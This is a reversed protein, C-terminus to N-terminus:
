VPCTDLRHSREALQAITRRRHPAHPCIRDALNPTSWVFEPDCDPRLDVRLTSPESGHGDWQPQCFCPERIPPGGRFLEGPPPKSSPEGQFALGRFTRWISIRGEFTRKKLNSCPESRGPKEVSESWQSSGRSPKSPQTADRQPGVKRSVEHLNAEELNAQRFRRAPEQLPGGGPSEGRHARTRGESSIGRFTVGALEARRLDSARHRPGSRAEYLNALQFHVHIGRLTRRALRGKPSPSQARELRGRSPQQQELDLSRPRRREAGELRSKEAGRNNLSRATRGRSCHPVGSNVTTLSLAWRVPRSPRRTRSVHERDQLSCFRNIGEDTVGLAEAVITSLAPVSFDTDKGQHYFRGDDVTVPDWEVHVDTPHRRSNRSNGTVAGAAQVIPRRQAADRDHRELGM